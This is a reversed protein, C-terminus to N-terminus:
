IPSNVINTVTNLGCYCLYMEEAFLTEETEFTKGRVAVLRARHGVVSSNLNPTKMTTLIIIIVIMM